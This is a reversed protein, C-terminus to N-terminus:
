QTMVEHIGSGWPVWGIVVNVGKLQEQLNDWMEQYRRQLKSSQVFNLIYARGKIKITITVPTAKFISNEGKKIAGADISFCIIPYNLLLAM